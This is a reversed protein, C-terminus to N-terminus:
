LLAFGRLDERPDDFSCSGFSTVVKRHTRIQDSSVTWERWRFVDDDFAFGERAEDELMETTQEENWRHQAALVGAGLVNLFGHMRAGVEDRYQRLPHHLGATFKIPVHSQTAAVLARAIQESTPFADPTLGGTRLKYGFARNSGRGNHRALLDITEEAVDVPAEWFSQLDSGALIGGVEALVALDANDPLAMELQNVSIIGAHSALISRIAGMSKKLEVMLDAAGTTKPGLVSVRLPHERDFRALFPISDGFRAVPLVFTALLWEDPSRAYAAQKTLADEM